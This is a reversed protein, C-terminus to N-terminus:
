CKAATSISRIHVIPQLGFPDVVSTPTESMSLNVLSHTELGPYV